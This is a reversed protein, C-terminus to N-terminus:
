RKQIRAVNDALDRSSRMQVAAVRLTQPPKEQEAAAPLPQLGVVAVGLLASWVPPVLASRAMSPSRRQQRRRAGPPRRRRAAGAGHPLGGARGGDASIM